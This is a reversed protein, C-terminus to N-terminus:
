QEKIRVGRPAQLSHNQDWGDLCGSGVESPDRVSECSLRLKKMLMGVEPVPHTLNMRIRM